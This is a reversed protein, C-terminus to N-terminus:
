RHTIIHRELATDLRGNGYWGGSVREHRTERVSTPKGESQCVHKGSGVVDGGVHQHRRLTVLAEEERLRAFIHLSSVTGDNQGFLSSVHPVTSHSWSDWSLVNHRRADIPLPCFGGTLLHQEQALFGASGRPWGRSRASRPCACLGHTEAATAAETRQEDRRRDRKRVRGM